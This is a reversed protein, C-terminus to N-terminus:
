MHTIRLEPEIMASRGALSALNCDSRSRRGYMDCLANAATKFTAALSSNGWTLPRDSKRCALFAVALVEVGYPVSQEGISNGLFFPPGGILTSTCFGKAISYWEHETLRDRDPNILRQMSFRGDVKDDGHLMM